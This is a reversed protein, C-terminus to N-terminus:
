LTVLRGPRARAQGAGLRTLCSRRTLIRGHCECQARSRAGCARNRDKTPRDMSRVEPRRKRGEPCGRRQGGRRQDAPRRRLRRLATWSDAGLPANYRRWLPSFRFSCAVGRGDAQEISPLCGARAGLPTNASASSLARGLEALLAPLFETSDAQRLRWGRGVTMPQPRAGGGRRRPCRPRPPTQGRRRHRRGAGWSDRFLANHRHSGLDGDRAEALGSVRAGRPRSHM